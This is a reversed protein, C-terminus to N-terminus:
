LHGDQLVRQHADQDDPQGPLEWQAGCVGHLKGVVQHLSGRGHLCITLTGESPEPVGETVVEGLPGRNSADRCIGRPCRHADGLSSRHAQKRADLRTDAGDWLGTGAPGSQDRSNPIPCHANM